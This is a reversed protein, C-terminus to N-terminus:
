DKWLPTSRRRPRTASADPSCRRNVTEEDEFQALYLEAAVVARFDAPADGRRLAAAMAEETANKPRWWPTGMSVGEAALRHPGRAACATSRIRARGDASSGGPQRTSLRRGAVGADADPLTDGCRGSGSYAASFAAESTFAEIVPAQPPGTVHWPFGAGAASGAVGGAPPHAPDGPSAVDSGTIGGPQGRARPRQPDPGCRDDAGRCRVGPDDGPGGYARGRGAPGPRGGGGAAARRDAIRPSWYGPAPGAWAGAATPLHGGRLGELM